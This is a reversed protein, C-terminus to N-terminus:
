IKYPLKKQTADSDKVSDFLACANKYGEANRDGGFCLRPNIIIYDGDAKFEQTSNFFGVVPEGNVKIASLVKRLRSLHSVDYGIANCYDRLAFPLVVDADQEKKNHALINTQRNLFPIMQLVYGINSQAIKGDAERYLLHFFGSFLRTYNKDTSIEGKFFLQDSLHLAGDKEWLYGEVEKLFTSWQNRNLGLEERLRDPTLSVYGESWHTAAFILRTLNARSVNPVLPKGYEFLIWIFSESHEYRAKKKAAYDLQRKRLVVDGDQLLALRADEVIEGTEFNIVGYKKSDEM